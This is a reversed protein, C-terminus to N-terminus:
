VTIQNQTPHSAQRVSLSYCNVHWSKLHKLLMTNHSIQFLHKDYSPAARQNILLNCLRSRRSDTGQAVAFFDAFHDSVVPRGTLYGQVSDCQLERLCRLQEPTEVGEAIVDLGVDHGM